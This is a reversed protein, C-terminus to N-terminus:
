KLTYGPEGSSHGDIRVVKMGPKVDQADVLAVAGPFAMIAEKQMGNSFLATPESQADGRFVQASWYQKYEAESMGLLNLLADREHAGAARVFIKVPSGNPWSHKEGSFVKRLEAKTLNVVPNKENVVVAVDGARAIVPAALGSLWIFVLAVTLKTQMTM